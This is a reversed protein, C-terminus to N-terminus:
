KKDLFMAVLPSDPNLEAAKKFAAAAQESRGLKEYCRSAMFSAFAGYETHGMLPMFSTLSTLYKGGVYDACGVVMQAELCDPKYSLAKQACNKARAADSLGLSSIAMGLWVQYDNRRYVSLKDFCELARHYRGANLSSSAVQYLCDQQKDESAVSYLREFTDAANNWDNGTVYIMALSKLAESNQPDITIARRYLSVAKEKQGLRNALDGATCLLTIDSPNATIKVDLLQQAEEQRELIELTNVIALIVQTRNPNQELAKQYFGLATVHDDSSQAVVGLGFWGDSLQGDLSVAKEFADRAQGYQQQELLIRGSLIHAAANDPNAKLIDNVLIQASEVQGQEFMNQAATLKVPSATKNYNEKFAAKQEQPSQCGCMGAVIALLVGMCMMNRITRM